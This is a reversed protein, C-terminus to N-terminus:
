SRARARELEAVAVGIKQSPTLEDAGTVFAYIERALEVPHTGLKLAAHICELRLERDAVHDESMSLNASM